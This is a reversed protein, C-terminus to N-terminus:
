NSVKSRRSFYQTTCLSHSIRKLFKFCNLILVLAQMILAYCVKFNKIGQKKLIRCVSSVGIKVKRAINRVSLHSGRKNAPSIALKEIKKVNSLTTATKPRGSGRIREISGTNKIKEVLKQIGSYTWNEQNFEKFIRKAGYGRNYLKLILHRSPPSIKGM